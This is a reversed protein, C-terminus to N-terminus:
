AGVCADWDSQNGAALVVLVCGVHQCDHRGPVFSNKLPRASMVPPLYRANTEQGGGEVTM